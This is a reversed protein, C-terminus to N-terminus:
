CRLYRLHVQADEKWQNAHNVVNIWMSWATRRCISEAPGHRMRVNSSSWTICTSPRPQLWSLLSSQWMINTLPISVLHFSKLWTSSVEWHLNWLCIMGNSPEHTLNKYGYQTWIQSCLWIKFHKKMHASLYCQSGRSINLAINWPKDLEDDNKWITM